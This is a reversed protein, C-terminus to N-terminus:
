KTKKTELEYNKWLEVIKKKVNNRAFDKKDRSIEKKKALYDDIAEYLLQERPTAGLRTNYKSIKKKLNERDKKEKPTLKPNSLLRYYNEFDREVDPDITSHLGFLDSTLLQDVRLGAPSPVKDNVLIEGSEEDREMVAIEMDRLGRLCLPEHTTALFQIRPFATRLSNVIEMKWRPHLYSGIEDLLVIGIAQQLDFLKEPYKKVIDTSIVTVSQYGDSLEDLPDVDEGFQVWIKGDRRFLKSDGVLNLLDKLTLAISDFERGKKLNSLYAEVDLLPRFPNFLNECMLAETLKLNSDLPSIQPLLRTTGYANLFTNVGEAGSEYEFGNKTLNLIVPEKKDSLYIKVWGKKTGRRLIKKPDLHIHQKFENLHNEGMIALSVAQLVSSKGTGNEGLLVKWSAKEQCCPALELSINKIAKFNQIEISKIYDTRLVAIKPYEDEKISTEAKTRPEESIKERMFKIKQEELPLEIDFNPALDKLFEKTARPTNRAGITKIFWRKVMQRKMCLYTNSKNLIKKIIKESAQYQKINFKSLIMNVNNAAEKRERILTDRNLGYIEISVKARKIRHSNSIGQEKLIKAKADDIKKIPLVNGDVLFNLYLEPYDLCPDILLNKEKKLEKGTTEPEARSGVVPFYNRKTRNCNRCSLYLNEWEYALWYYYDPDAHGKLDMAGTKPRFQDVDFYGTVEIRCECYACKGNFLNELASKVKPHAYISSRFKFRRQARIKRKLDFFKQLEQKAKEVRSTTLIDPVPFKSRNIHIM